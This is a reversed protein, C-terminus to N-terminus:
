TITAASLPGGNGGRGVGVQSSGLWRPGDTKASPERGARCVKRNERNRLCSVRSRELEGSRATGAKRRSKSGHVSDGGNLEQGAKFMILGETCVPDIDVGDRQRLYFTGPVERESTAKPVMLALLFTEQGLM